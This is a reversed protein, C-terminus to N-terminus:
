FIQGPDTSAGSQVPNVIREELNTMDVKPDYSAVSGGGQPSPLTDALLNANDGERQGGAFSGPKESPATGTTTQPEPSPSAGANYGDAGNFVAVDSGDSGGDGGGGGGTGGGSQSELFEREDEYDNRLWLDDNAYVTLRTGSPVYVVPPVLKAEDLLQQFIQGMSDIFNQRADAAAQARASQVVAGGETTQVDQDVAMMYTIASTVTTSLLPLGYKKVLEEDLYSAIGGRGQADGSTAEFLFAAGDPRILRQWTIQMKAVKDTGAGSQAMGILRSGAPIIINRGQESYINREVIASAPVNTFRSDISHALVAPIAKDKIVVRSMDVPWTSVIRKVPKGWDPSKRKRIKALIAAGPQIRSFDKNRKMADRKAGLLANSIQKEAPDAAPLPPAVPIEPTTAPTPPARPILLAEDLGKPQGDPGIYGKIEGTEGDIISTGVVDYMKGDGLKIKRGSLSPMDEPATTRVGCKSLSVNTGVIEGLDQGKDSILKTGAVTAYTNGNLDVIRGDSQITAIKECTTANLVACDSIVGLTEGKMGRIFTVDGGTYCLKNGMADVPEGDENVTFIVEGALNRFEGGRSLTGAIIGDPNYILEEDRPVVRGLLKGDFDVATVRGDGLARGMPTGAKGIVTGDKTVRGIILGARSVVPGREVLAGFVKGLNDAAMGDNKVCGVDTGAVDVVRSDPMVRGVYDGTPSMVLGTRVLRGVRNGYSDVAWGSNQVRGVTDGTANIVQAVWNPQGLMQCDNVVLNEPAVQGVIKLRGEKVADNTAVSGMPRGDASVVRGDGNVSGLYQGASSVATGFRVVAGSLEGGGLVTADDLVRAIAKDAEDWVDGNLTTRGLVAGKNYGVPLGQRVLHGVYPMPAFTDRATVGAVSGDPLVRGVLTGAKNLVLGNAAAVGISSGFDDVVVGTKLTNGGWTNDVTLLSGFPMYSGLKVGSKGLVETKGSSRAAVEGSRSVFVAPKLVGGIVLGQANLVAGNGLVDGIAKDAAFVVGNLSGEGLVALNNATILGMPVIAGAVKKSQSVALGNTMVSGYLRTTGEMFLEGAGNMEALTQGRVYENAFVAGDAVKGVVQGELVVLHGAAILGARTNKFSMVSGDGSVTGITQGRDDFAAAGLPAYFGIIDGDSGTVRNDMGVFGITQAGATITGDAQTWGLFMGLMDVAVGAPVARATIGNQESFVYGSVGLMGSPKNDTMVAANPAAYSVFRGAADVVPLRPVVRGLLAGDKAFATGATTLRGVPVDDANLVLGKLTHQAALNGKADVVAGIKVLRGVAKGDNGLVLGFPTFTGVKRGSADKVEGYLTIGGLVGDPGIPVSLPPFVGGLIQNNESIALGSALVRGVKTKDLGNVAGQADVVGVIQGTGSFVTGRPIKHGIIKNNKDIVTGDARIAGIVAGDAGILRGDVQMMGLYKGSEDMFTSQDPILAGVIKVKDGGVATLDPLVTAFREGKADLAYGNASSYRGLILGDNSVVIGDPIIVEEIVGDPNTRVSVDGLPTTIGEPTQQGVRGITNGELDTVRGDPDVCGIIKGSMDVVKGDMRVRGLVKGANDFALGRISVGGIVGGKDNVITKEPTVCGVHAGFADVVQGNLAILGLFRCGDAIAGGRPVVAGIIKGKDSVYKDPQVRGIIEGALNRAQADPYVSGPVSCKQGVVRGHALLAGVSKKNAVVTEDPNVCGVVNGKADIAKGESNVFGAISKDNIVLGQSVAVGIDKGNEAVVSGDLLVRGALQNFANRVEGNLAVVGVSQCGSAVAVGAPIVGGLFEGQTSVIFGNPRIVGVTQGKINRVSGDPLVGGMLAGNLDIALGWPSLVGLSAGNLGVITGDALPRGIVTNTEDIVTGDAKMKGIVRGTEDMVSVVPLAAGLVKLSADVVTGDGLVRGLKDGTDSIVEGADSVSGLVKGNLGVPIKKPVAIAIIRKNEDVVVNNETIKYKQGDIIVTTDDEADYLVGDLRMVARPKKAAAAANECIICDKSDTSQGKLQIVTKEERVSTVNNERWKVTMINQLQRLASPTWFIKLLCTQGSLIAGDLPCTTEFEFGDEQQEALDTGLVLIDGDKATLTAVAEAKSGLVVKDMTIQTPTVVLTGIGLGTMQSNSLPGLENTGIIPTDPEIEAQKKPLLFLVLLLLLLVGVGILIMNRNTKKIYQESSSAREEQM